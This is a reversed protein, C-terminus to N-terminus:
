DGVHRRGIMACAPCYGVITTFALSAVALWGVWSGPGSAFTWTLWALIAALVLRAAREWYPLNRKLHFM